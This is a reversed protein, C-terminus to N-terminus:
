FYRLNIAFSSVEVVAIDGNPGIKKLVRIIRFIKTEQEMQPHQLLASLSQLNGYVCRHPTIMRWASVIFGGCKIDEKTDIIVVTRM